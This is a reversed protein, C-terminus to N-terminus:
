YDGQILEADIIDDMGVNEIPYEHPYNPLSVNGNEDIFNVGDWAYGIDVFVYNPILVLVCNAPPTDTPEAVIINVVKDGLVVACRSM